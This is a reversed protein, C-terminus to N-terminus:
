DKLVVVNTMGRRKREVLGQGELRDIIRTMKAKGLSTKDILDSQFIAKGEKVLNYVRKEEPKLTSIDIKKEVKKEKINKIVIKEKPKSFVLVLSIILLIAVIGLSLYTQDKITKYMPCSFSDGHAMTCSSTVIDRLASDFLFIIMIIVLSIGFLLWGVNKNEM